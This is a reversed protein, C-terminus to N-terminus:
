GRSQTTNLFSTHMTHASGFWFRLGLGPKSDAASAVFGVGCLWVKNETTETGHQLQLIVLWREINLDGHM